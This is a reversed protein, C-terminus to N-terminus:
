AHNGAQQWAFVLDVGSFVFITQGYTANINQALTGLQLATPNISLTRTFINADEANAFANSHVYYNTNATITQSQSPVVCGFLTGGYQSPGEQVNDLVIQNVESYACEINLSQTYGVVGGAWVTNQAYNASIQGSAIAFMISGSAQNLGVIGGVRIESLRNSSEVDVDGHNFCQQVSGNNQGVVGGVRLEKQGSATIHMNNGSQLVQGTSENQAVVGGLTINVNQVSCNVSLEGNIIVNKVTGSNTCVVGGIKINQYTFETMDFSEFAVNDVVINQVTGKNTCVLAAIENSGQYTITGDLVVNKIIGGNSVGRFLAVKDDTHNSSIAITIKHNDGDYIGGFDTYTLAGSIGETRLGIITAVDELNNTQKFVFATSSDSVVANNAIRALEVTYTNLYDYKELRLNMNAFQQANSIQFPNNQTGYANQTIYNKLEMSTVVEDFEEGTFINVGGFLTCDMIYGAETFTSMLGMHGSPRCAVSVRHHQQMVVPAFYVVNLTQNDVTITKYYPKANLNQASVEYYYIALVTNEADLIEDKIVYNTQPQVEFYYQMLNEDFAVLTPAPPTHYYGMDTFNSCIFNTEGCPVLQMQFKMEEINEGLANIDIRVTQGVISVVDNYGEDGFRLIQFVDQGDEAQNNVNYRFNIAFQEFPIGSVSFNIFNGGAETSQTLNIPQFQPKLFTRQTVVGGAFNVFRAYESTIKGTQHAKVMFQYNVGVQANQPWVHNTTTTADAYSAPTTMRYTFMQDAEHCDWVFEGNLIRVNEPPAIKEFSLTTPQGLIQTYIKSGNKTLGANAGDFAYAQVVATYAGAAGFQAFDLTCTSSTQTYEDHGLASTFLTVNSPSFTVMYGIQTTPSLASNPVVSVDIPSWTIKGNTEALETPADLMVADIGHLENNVVSNLYNVDEGGTVPGSSGLARFKFNHYGATQAQWILTSSQDEIHAIEDDILVVFGQSNTPQVFQFIGRNTVSAAINSLKFVNFNTTKGSIVYNNNQTISPMIGVLRLKLPVIRGTDIIAAGVQNEAVWKNQGRAIVADTNANMLEFRASPIAFDNDLVSQVVLEGNQMEPEAVPLITIEVVRSKLGTLVFDASSHSQDNGKVVLFIKKIQPSLIGNEVLETLNLGIREATLAVGTTVALPINNNEDDLAFLQYVVSNNPQDNYNVSYNFQAPVQLRDWALWYNYIDAGETIIRLNTPAQPVFINQAGSTASNLLDFNNGDQWMKIQYAGGAFVNQASPSPLDGEVVHTDIQELKDFLFNATPYRTQSNCNLIKAFNANEEDFNQVIQMFRAAAYENVTQFTKDANAKYVGVNGQPALNYLPNIAGTALTAIIGSQGALSTQVFDLFEELKTQQTPTITLFKYADTKVQKLMTTGAQNYFMVNINLDNFGTIPSYINIPANFMAVIYNEFENFASMMEEIKSQPDIDTNAATIKASLATLLAELNSQNFTDLGSIGNQWILAGNQVSLQEPAHVKQVFTDNKMHTDSDEFNQILLYTSKLGWLNYDATQDIPSVVPVVDIKVFQNDEGAFVRGIDLSLQKYIQGGHLKGNLYVYYGSAGNVKQWTIVGNQVSITTPPLSNLTVSVFNSTLFHGESEGALTTGMNAFSFVRQLKATVTPTFNYATKPSGFTIATFEGDDVTWLGSANQDIALTVFKKDLGNYEEAEQDYLTMSLALDLTNNNNALVGAFLADSPSSFVIDHGNNSNQAVIQFAYTTQSDLQSLDQLKGIFYTDTASRDLDAAVDVLNIQAVFNDGDFVKAVYSEAMTIKPFTFFGKDTAVDQVTALKTFVKHSTMYPSDLVINTSVPTTTVNGLAKIDLVIEGVSQLALIPSQRPATSLAQWYQNNEPNSDHVKVVSFASIETDDCDWVFNIGDTQFLHVPKLVRYSIKAPASCIKGSSAQPIATISLQTSQYVLIEFSNQGSMVFQEQAGAAVKAPHSVDNIVYQSASDVADFVFKLSTSIGTPVSNNDSTYSGVLESERVFALNTPADLRTATTQEANSPLIDYVGALPVIQAFFTYEGAGWNTPYSYSDQIQLNQIPQSNDDLVVQDALKVTLSATAITDGFVGQGSTKQDVDSGTILVQTPRVDITPMLLKKARKISQASSLVVVGNEAVVQGDIGVTMTSVYRFNITFSGGEYNQLPVQYAQTTTEASNLTVTTGLQVNAKDFVSLELQYKTQTFGFVNQGTIVDVEDVQQALRVFGITGDPLVWCTTRSQTELSIGDVNQPALRIIKLEESLRSAIKEPVCARVQVSYVGANDFLGDAAVYQATASNAVYQGNVFIEYFTANAVADWSLTVNKQDGTEVDAVFVKTNTPAALRQINLSITQSTIINKSTAPPTIYGKVAYEDAVYQVIFDAYPANFDTLTAGDGVVQFHFTLDSLGLNKDVQNKLTIKSLQGDPTNEVVVRPAALKYATVNAAPSTLTLMTQQANCAGKAVAFIEFEKGDLSAILAQADASISYTNGNAIADFVYSQTCNPCQLCDTCEDCNDLLDCTVAFIRVSFGDNPLNSQAEHLGLHLQMDQTIYLKQPASLQIITVYQSTQSSVKGSGNAQVRVFVQNQGGLLEATTLEAYTITPQGDDQIKIKRDGNMPIQTSSIILSYDDADQVADFMFSVKQESEILQLTLNQPTALTQISETAGYGDASIYGIDDETTYPNITMPEITTKVKLSFIGATQTYPGLLMDDLALYNNEIWLWFQEGTTGQGELQYKVQQAPLAPENWWFRANDVDVVVNTKAVRKIKFTTKNSDLYYSEYMEHQVTNDQQLTQVTQQNASAEIFVELTSIINEPIGGLSIIGDQVKTTIAGSVAVKGFEAIVIQQGLNFAKFQAQEGDISMQTVPPLKTFTITHGASVLTNELLIEDLSVATIKVTYKGEEVFKPMSEAGNIDFAYEFFGIPNNQDDLDQRGTNYQSQLVFVPTDSPLDDSIDKNTILPQNQYAQTQLDQYELMFKTTIQKDQEANGTAAINDHSWSIVLKQVGAVTVVHMQVNQIQNERNITISQKTDSSEYKVEGANMQRWDQGRIIERVSVQCTQGNTLTLPRNLNKTNINKMDVNDITLVSREQGNITTYLQYNVNTIDQLDEYATWNFFFRTNGTISNLELNQVVGLKKITFSAEASELRYAGAGMNFNTLYKATIVTTQADQLNYAFTFDTRGATQESEAIGQGTTLTTVYTGSADSKDGGEIAGTSKILMTPAKLRQLTVVRRSETILYETSTCVEVKITYEDAQDFTNPQFTYSNALIAQANQVPVFDTGQSKANVFVTYAVEKGYTQAPAGWNVTIVDDETKSLSLSSIDNLKLITMVTPASAFYGVQNPLLTTWAAPKAVVAFEGVYDINAYETADGEFLIANNPLKHGVYYVANQVPAFTITKQAYNFNLDTVSDIRSIEFQAEDSSTYYTKINNIISPTTSAVFKVAFQWHNLTLDLTIREAVQGNFVLSKAGQALSTSIENDATLTVQQPAAIKQVIIQASTGVFFTTNTADKQSKVLFSHQMYGDFLQQVGGIPVLTNQTQQLTATENNQIIVFTPNTELTEIKLYANNDHEEYQLAVTALNKITEFNQAKGAITYTFAPEGDIQNQPSQTKIRAEVGYEDLSNVDAWSITSTGPVNQLPQSVQSKLLIEASGLNANTVEFTKTAPVYVINAEPLKEFAYHLCRASDLVPEDPNELTGLAQVSVEYQGANKITTKVFNSSLLTVDEIVTNAIQQNEQWIVLKYATAGESARWAIEGNDFTQIEPVALKKVTLIESKNIDYVDNDPVNTVVQFTHTGANIVSPLVFSNTSSQAVQPGQGALTYNVTYTTTPPNTNHSWSLTNTQEDFRLDAPQAMLKFGIASSFVSDAFDASNEAPAVAKVRAEYSGNDSLSISVKNLVMNPDHKEYIQGDKKIEVKYFPHVILQGAADRYTVANWKLLNAQTDYMLDTPVDLQLKPKVVKLVCSAVETNQYYASLTCQGVSNAVVLNTATVYVVNPQSSKFAINAQEEKTLERDMTVWNLPNYTEGYELQMVAQEFNAKVDIGNCAVLLIGSVLMLVFACFSGVIKKM